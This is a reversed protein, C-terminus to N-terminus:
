AFRVCVLHGQAFTTGPVEEEKGSLAFRKPARVWVRRQCRTRNGQLRSRSHIGLSELQGDLGEKGRISSLPGALGKGLLGSVESDNVVSACLLLCALWVKM